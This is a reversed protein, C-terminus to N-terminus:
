RLEFVGFVLGKERQDGPIKSTHGLTIGVEM